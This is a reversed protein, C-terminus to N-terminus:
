PDLFPCFRPNYYCVVSLDLALFSLLLLVELAGLFREPFFLRVSLRDAVLGHPDVGASGPRSGRPPIFKALTEVARLAVREALPDLGRWEEGVPAHPALLRKVM